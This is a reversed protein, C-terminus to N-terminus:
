APAPRHIPYTTRAEIPAGEDIVEGVVNILRGLTEPGVPVNIPQGTDVVDAGRVLGETSDMAITRVM